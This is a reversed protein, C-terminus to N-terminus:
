FFFLYITKGRRENTQGDQPPNENREVRKTAPETHKKKRRKM